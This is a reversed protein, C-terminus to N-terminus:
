LLCIHPPTFGEIALHVITGRAGVLFGDTLEYAVDHFDVEFPLKVRELPSKEPLGHGLFWITSRRGVALMESIGGWHNVEAARIEEGSLVANGAPWPAYSPPPTPETQNPQVYKLWIGDGMVNGAETVVRLTAQAPARPICVREGDRSACQVLTGGAGVACVYAGCSGLGYLDATTRTKVTRWVGERSREVMVGGAGVAVTSAGLHLLAFLDASTGTSEARWVGDLGRAVAAGNSGVAIYPKNKRLEETIVTGDKEHPSAVLAYLNETTGPDEKQWGTKADRTLVTGRDGVVLIRGGHIMHVARLSETTGSDEREFRYLYGPRRGGFDTEPLHRIEFPKTDYGLSPLPHAVGPPPGCRDEFSAPVYSPGCAPLGFLSALVLARTTTM